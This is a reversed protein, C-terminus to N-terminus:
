ESRASESSESDVISEIMSAFRRLLRVYIPGPQASGIARGDVHTIALLQRISSTIFVEEASWLQSVDPCAFEVPIGEETAAELVFRRTIGPLIGASEPPTTVVGGRVLFLNSTAGEVLRGSRDVILAENAGTAKAEKMALVAVLYNGVKAGVAATEDTSRQTRYTIAKVGEDYAVQAPRHLPTVIVIRQPAVALAPDLGLDGSGRTVIVRVYSEDNGAERIARRIETAFDRQSVPFEIFVLEASRRLRELHERLAFPRGRYTGLTEFVSNGYLLGRDFVSIKAAEPAFVAGNIMVLTGM